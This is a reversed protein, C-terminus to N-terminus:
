RAGSVPKTPIFQFVMVAQILAVISVLAMFLFGKGGYQEFVDGAMRTMLAMFIGGSIAGYLGQATNQLRPPITARIYHMTGLHLMAFSVAHLMQVMATTWVDTVYSMIIWRIAGGTLGVLMLREAGLRGVFRKSFGFMVVETLVAAMWFLGIVVPSIGLKTWYVSSFGNLMAHSSQGLSVAILVLTFQSAFLLRKASEGDFMHAPHVVGRDPDPPLVFTALVACAQGAVMMWIAAEPDFRTLLYGSSLSGALFSVSAWLRLRGYDLGLRSSSNISFSETLPFVAAFTFSAVAALTLIQTFGNAQSLVVYACLALVACIRVVILRDGFRDALNSILPSAVARSVMMTALVTAIEAHDLRRAQMWLPFFPLQVGAGAM